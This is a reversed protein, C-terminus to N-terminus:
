KDEKEALELEAERKRADAPNKLDMVNDVTWAKAPKRDDAFYEVSGTPKSISIVSVDAFKSNSLAAHYANYHELPDRDAIAFGKISIQGASQPGKQGRRARGGGRPPSTKLDNLWILYGDEALDEGAVTIDTFQDLLKTWLIRGSAIGTITDGRKKYEAEEALLQKEYNLRPQRQALAQQKSSKETEVEARWVFHVYAAFAFASFLGSACHGVVSSKWTM